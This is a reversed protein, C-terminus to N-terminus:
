ESWIKTMKNDYVGVALELAQMNDNLGEYTTGNIFDIEGEPRITDAHICVGAQTCIYAYASDCGRVFPFRRRITDIVAPSESCGLLHVEMDYRNYQKFLDNLIAAALERVYRDGTEMQLFKSIGITKVEPWQVMERACEKWEYLTAGQPVAMFTFPVAGDYFSCIMKLADKSKQITEKGNLLTDPLVVESPQVDQYCKILDDVHLQDGEAAGNDMLVFRDKAMRRYFEKYKESKVAVNALCMHYGNFSTTALSDVPVIHAIKFEKKKIIKEIQICLANLSCTADVRYPEISTFMKEYADVISQLHHEEIYDDGRQALREALVKVPCDFYIVTAQKLLPWTVSADLQSEVNAMIPEYIYDDLITARDYVVTKGSQLLREFKDVRQKREELSPTYSEKIFVADELHEKLWQFVSSKGAGDAGELIYIM